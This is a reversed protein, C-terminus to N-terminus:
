VDCAKPNPGNRLPSSEVMRVAFVVHVVWVVQVVRVIRFVLVIWVRGPSGPSDASDPSDPSCHDRPWLPRSLASQLTHPKKINTPKSSPADVHAGFFIRAFTFTLGRCRTFWCALLCLFVSSSLCSVQSCFVVQAVGCSVRTMNNTYMSNEMSLRNPALLRLGLKQACLFSIKM